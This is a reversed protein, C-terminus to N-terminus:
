HGHSDKGVALLYINSVFVKFDLVHQRQFMELPKDEYHRDQLVVGIVVAGTLEPARKLVNPSSTDPSKLLKHM